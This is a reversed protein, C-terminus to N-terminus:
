EEKTLEYEFDKKFQLISLISALMLWIGIFLVIVFEM